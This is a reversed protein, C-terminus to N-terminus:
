CERIKKLDLATDLESYLMHKPPGDSWRVTFRLMMNDSREVAPTSQSLLIYYSLSQLKLVYLLIVNKFTICGHNREVSM